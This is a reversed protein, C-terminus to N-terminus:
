GESSYEKIIETMDMNGSAPLQLDAQAKEPTGDVIEYDVSNIMDENKM